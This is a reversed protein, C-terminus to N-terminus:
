AGIDEHQIGHRDFLQLSDRVRYDNVYYVKEVGGLNILFKACTVCPLHTTFVIKSAGRPATCNIVANQEAHICGCNGVAEAGHRDCDNKGGTVNGNYGISFVQRYDHSAIVCGVKMRACTSRQALALAFGAFISEFSPRKSVGVIMGERVIVDKQDAKLAEHLPDRVSPTTPEPIPVEIWSHEGTLGNPCFPNFDEASESVKCKECVRM